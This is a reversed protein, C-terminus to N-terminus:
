IAQKAIGTRKWLEIIFNAGEGPPSEVRISGHHLRVIEQTISLGLGHGSAAQTAADDCRYFKSFIKEQEPPPIGLGQDKVSISIADENEELTVWVPKDDPSYKLANTMLNSIAVRFLEKDIMVPTVGGGDNVQIRAQDTGHDLMDVCEQVVEELHTRHQDLEFTGMEIQTMSLLNNILRTMREVEQLITNHAELVFGQDQCNDELMQAYLGITNLPAKVEHSVSGVFEARSQKAAVEATVDRLLILIGSNSGPAKTFYLPHASLGLTRESANPAPIQATQSLAQSGNHKMDRVYSTLPEYSCWSDLTTSQVDLRSVKFMDEVHQNLFAVKFDQDLILVGDPITQLISEYRQTRYSLFKEQTILKQSEQEAATLRQQVQQVFTNIGQLADETEDSLTVQLNQNAQGQALESLKNSIDELPKSNRYQLFLWLPLLLVVPFVLLAIISVDKLTMAFTPVLFGVRFYTPEAGTKTPMAGSFQVVEGIGLKFQDRQLWSQPSAQITFVPLRDIHQQSILKTQAFGEANVVQGYAFHKNSLQHQFLTEFVRHNNPDSALEFNSLLRALAVGDRQVTQLASQQQFHLYTACIACMVALVAILSLFNTKSEVQM